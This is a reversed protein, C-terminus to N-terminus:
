TPCPRDGMIKGPNLINKPGLAAKIRRLITARSTEQEMFRSKAM